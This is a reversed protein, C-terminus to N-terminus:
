LPITKDKYSNLRIGNSQETISSVLKRSKLYRAFALNITTKQVQGWRTGPKNLTKLVSDWEDFVNLKKLATINKSLTFLHLYRSFQERKENEDLNVTYVYYNYILEKFTYLQNKNILKRMLNDSIQDYHEEAITDLNEIAIEKVLEQLDLSYNDYFQSSIIYSLDEKDFQNQLIHATLKESYQKNKISIKLIHDAINTKEDDSIADDDLLALM